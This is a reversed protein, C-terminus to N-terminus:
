AEEGVVCVETELLMGREQQVKERVMNVLALVDAATAGGLNVIFNGHKLSIQAGGCRVGKLGLEEIIRGAPAVAPNKFISGANRYPLPHKEKRLALIEEVRLGIANGEGRQLCFAAEVIIDHPSMELARYRFRLKDRGRQVIRGEATLFTVLVAVDKIERGYAGANMRIVGGVSGPVGACFEMGTLGERLSKDVLVALSVGAEARLFARNDEAEVSLSQLNKLAVVVGRYGGDRVILNTGNGLPMYPLGAQVLYAVTNKLEEKCGPFVLADAPGGVGMSTHRSMPEDFLVAGNILSPLKRRWGLDGMVRGVQLAYHAKENVEAM